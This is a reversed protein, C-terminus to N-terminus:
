QVEQIFALEYSDDNANADMWDNAQEATAFTAVTEGSDNILEWQNM